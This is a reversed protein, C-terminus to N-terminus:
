VSKFCHLAGDSRGAGFQSKAGGGEWKAGWKARGGNLGWAGVGFYSWLIQTAIDTNHPAEILCDFDDFITKIM